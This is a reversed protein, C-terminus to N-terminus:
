VAECGPFAAHTRVDRARGLADRARDNALRRSVSRRLQMATAHPRVCSDAAFAHFGRATPILATGPLNVGPLSTLQDQPAVGGVPLVSLTPCGSYPSPTCWSPRRGAGHPGCTRWCAARWRCFGRGCCHFHWYGSAIGLRGNKTSSMHIRWSFCHPQSVASCFTATRGTSHGVGSNRTM